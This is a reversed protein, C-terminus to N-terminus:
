NLWDNETLSDAMRTVEEITMEFPGIEPMDENWNWTVHNQTVNIMSPDPSSDQGQSRKASQQPDVAPYSIDRLLYFIKQNLDPYLEIKM